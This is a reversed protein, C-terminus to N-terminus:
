TMPNPAEPKVMYERLSRRGPNEVFHYLLISALLTMLIYVGIALLDKSGTGDILWFRTWDRVFYHFMYTSYSVTGLYALIRNSFFFAFGCKKDACSIILAVFALPLIAFDRVPSLIYILVSVVFVAFAVPWVISWREELLIFIKCGLMGLMFQLICRVLGYTAIGHDISAAHISDFFLYILILLCGFAPVLVQLSQLYRRVGMVLFPFILYAFWETSISWSPINWGLEEFWGWNHLLFLSAVFYETTYRPGLPVGKAFLLIVLPNIIFLISVVLHLPYIRALRAILFPRVKSVWGTSFMDRYNLFLVFGSLAFFLDVALYGKAIFSSLWAPVFPGIFEKFHYLVVWWAAIGRLGTLPVIEVTKKKQSTEM